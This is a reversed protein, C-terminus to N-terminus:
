EGGGMEAYLWARAGSWLRSVTRESTQLARATEAITLGAFYRLKVVQSM